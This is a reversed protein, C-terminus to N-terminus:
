KDESVLKLHPYAIEIDKEKAISDLFELNIKTRNKRVQDYPTLFQASLLISSDAMEVRIKPKFDEELDGLQKIEETIKEKETTINKRFGKVKNLHFNRLIETLEAKENKKWKVYSGLNEKLHKTVIEEIIKIAKHYNSEYTISINLEDVIYNSDKNYNEVDTTLVLENPVTVTKHSRMSSNNLLSYLVTNMVQIEKVDGRVNGIRVRDGENYINKLIITLWGVFNLIPKQLAFTLGLGVIGLSALFSGVNGIIISFVILIYLLWWFFRILQRLSKFKYVEGTRKKFNYYSFDIVLFFIAKFIFFLAIIAIIKPSFKILYEIAKQISLFEKIYENTKSLFLLLWIFVVFVISTIIPVKKSNVEKKMTSNIKIGNIYM